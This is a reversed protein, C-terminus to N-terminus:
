NIFYAGPNQKVLLRRYMDTYAGLIGSDIPSCKKEETRGLTRHMGKQKLCMRILKQGRSLLKLRGMKTHLKHRNMPRFIIQYLRSRGAHTIPHVRDRTNASRDNMSKKLVRCEITGWM